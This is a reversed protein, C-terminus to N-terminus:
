RPTCDGHDLLSGVRSWGQRAGGDGRRNEGDGRESEGRDRVRTVIVATTSATLAFFMSAAAVLALAALAATATAVSASVATPMALSGWAGGVLVLAHPVGPAMPDLERLTVMVAKDGAPAAASIGIGRASSVVKYAPECYHPPM